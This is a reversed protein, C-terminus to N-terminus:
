YPSKFLIVPFVIIRVLGDPWGLTGYLCIRKASAKCASPLLIDSGHLRVTQAGQGLSSM